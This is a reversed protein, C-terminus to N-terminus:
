QYQELDVRLDNRLRQPEVVAGSNAPTPFVAVLRGDREMGPLWKELWDDLPIPTPEDGKWAGESCAAAFQEHPWVPIVERGDEAGALSWGSASRLSWVQEWDAVRKVFYEYREEFPLASATEFEKPHLTWSM